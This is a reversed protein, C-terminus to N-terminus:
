RASTKSLLEDLLGAVGVSIQFGKKITENERNAYSLAVPVTMTSSIHVNLKAQAIGITKADSNKSRTAKVSLTADLRREAFRRTNAAGEVSFSRVNHLKTGDPTRNRQNFDIQANLNATATPNASDAATATGAAPNYDTLLKLSYFDSLAPDRQYLGAISLQLKSQAKLYSEIITSLHARVFRDADMQIGISAVCQKIVEVGRDDPSYGAFATDLSETHQLATAFREKGLTTELQSTCTQFQQIDARNIMDTLDSIAPLTAIDVDRASRNGSVIIKVEGNAFSSFDGKTVDESSFTSSLSVQRAWKYAKWNPTTDKKGFATLWAYPTSTLTVSSGSSNKTIAGREIALSLLDAIGAKETLSTAAAGGSPATTQQDTRSNNVQNAGATAIEERLYTKAMYAVVKNIPQNGLPLSPAPQQSFASVASFASAVIMTIRVTTRM